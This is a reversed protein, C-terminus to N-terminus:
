REVEKGLELGFVENANNYKDRTIKKVAELERKFIRCEKKKAFLEQETVHVLERLRKNDAELETVGKDKDPEGHVLTKLYEQNM